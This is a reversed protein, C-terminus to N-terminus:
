VWNARVEEVALVLEAAGGQEPPLYRALLQVGEAATSSFKFPVKHPVLATLAVGVGRVLANKFGGGEAVIVAATMKTVVDRSWVALVRRVEESPAPSSREIISLYTAKGKTREILARCHKSSVTVHEVSAPGRYVCFLTDHWSALCFDSDQLLIRAAVRPQQM